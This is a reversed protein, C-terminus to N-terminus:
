WGSSDGSQPMLRTKGRRKVPACSWNGSVVVKAKFQERQLEMISMTDTKQPKQNMQSMQSIQNLPQNMEYM